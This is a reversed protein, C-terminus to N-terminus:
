FIRYYIRGLIERIAISSSNFNYAQPLWQLPDLLFSRSWGGSAQFDVPFPIVTLGQKEFLYKARLMHYASTVLLIRRKEIPLMRSIEYAEEATNHVPPTSFLANNPLGMQLADKLYKEGQPLIYNYYPNVGGTFLIRPARKAKFLAIGALFRDTQHWENIHEDESSFDDGGSLVVIADARSTSKVSRRQYPSELVLWLFQSVVGLSTLYLISISILLPWRKYSFLSIVLLFICVGLPM